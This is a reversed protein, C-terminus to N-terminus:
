LYPHGREGVLALVGAQVREQVDRAVAHVRAADAADAETFGTFEVPPLFRIRWKVPRPVLNKPVPLGMGLLDEYSTIRRGVPNAEEGGVVCVPVVPAQTAMAVRVFGRAFPELRYAAGPRFAGREGEPFVMVLHGHRVQQAMAEKTVQHLGVRRAFEASASTAFWAPHVMGRVLRGTADHVCLATLAYDLGLWGTHNAALIAPGTLPVHELGDVELRFYHRLSRLWPTLRAVFRLDVGDGGDTAGGRLGPPGAPAGPPPGPRM